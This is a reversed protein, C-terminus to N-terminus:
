PNSPPNLKFMRKLCWQFTKWHPYGIFSNLKKESIQDDTKILLYQTGFIIIKM